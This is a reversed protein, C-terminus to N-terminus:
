LNVAAMMVVQSLTKEGVHSSNDKLTVEVDWHTVQCKQRITGQYRLTWHYTARRMGRLQKSGDQVNDNKTIDARELEQNM